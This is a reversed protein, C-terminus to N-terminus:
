RQFVAMFNSDRGVALLASSWAASRRGSRIIRSRSYGPHVPELDAASELNCRVRM